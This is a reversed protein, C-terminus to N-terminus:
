KSYYFDEAPLAGGVSAPNANFLLAYGTGAGEIRFFRCFDYGVGYARLYTYIWRGYRNTKLSECDLQSAETLQRSM